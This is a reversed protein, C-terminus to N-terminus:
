RETNVDGVTAQKYLGYAKLKDENSVTKGGGPVFSKVSEASANFRAQLRATRAPFQLSLWSTICTRPLRPPCPRAYTWTLWTSSFRSLNRPNCQASTIGRLRANATASETSACANDSAWCGVGHSAQPVTTSSYKWRHISAFSSCLARASSSSRAPGRDQHRRPAACAGITSTLKSTRRSDVHSADRSLTYLGMTRSTHSASSVCGVVPMFRRSATM